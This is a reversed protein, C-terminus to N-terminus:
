RIYAWFPIYLTLVQCILFQELPANKFPNIAGLVVSTLGTVAALIFVVWGFSTFGTAWLGVLCAMLVGLAFITRRTIKGLLTDSSYGLSFGGILAPYILLYKWSWAGLYLACISASLALIFSGIFRRWFLGFGKTGGAAYLVNAVFAMFGLIAVFWIDEQGFM